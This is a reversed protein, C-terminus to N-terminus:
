TKSDIWEIYFSRNGKNFLDHMHAMASPWNPWYSEDGDSEVYFPM